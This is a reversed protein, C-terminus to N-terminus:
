YATSAKPLGNLNMESLVTELIYRVNSPTFDKGTATKMNYRNLHDAVTTITLSEGQYKRLQVMERIMQRAKQTNPNSKAKMRKTATAKAQADSSFGNPNGLDLGKRKKEALATKTRIGILERERDAIAMFITLIFKDMKGGKETPIDCSFLRGNLKQYISLADETKRSLRDIKAVALTYGNEKCQNIAKQLEPREHINKASRVETYEAAIEDSQVFHRIYAKQADLGLGSDGQKKTSVRYYIVYKM